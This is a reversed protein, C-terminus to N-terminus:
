EIGKEDDKVLKNEDNWEEKEVARELKRNRM